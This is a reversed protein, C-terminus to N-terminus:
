YGLRGYSLRSTGLVFFGDGTGSSITTYQVLQAVPIATWTEEWRQGFQGHRHVLVVDENAQTVGGSINLTVVDGVKLDKSGPIPGITYIRAPNSLRWIRLGAVLKAQAEHQLCYRGSESTPRIDTRRPVRLSAANYRYERNTLGEIPYGVVDFKDVVMGLRTNTNRLTTLWYTAAVPTTTGVVLNSNLNEGGASRANATYSVFQALPYRFRFRQTVTSNAPILVPTTLSHVTALRGKRRPQYNITAEDFVSAYDYTLQVDETGASRDITAVPSAGVWHSWPWFKLTVDQPDVWVLAGECEAIERMEALCDDGDLYYWPVVTYGPSISASPYAISDVVHQILASTSSGQVATSEPRQQQIDRDYGYCMLTVTGAKEQAPAQQVRGRFIVGRQPSGGVKYGASFRVPVQYIGYTAAQSDAHTPSFRGDANNMTVSLSAVLGEGLSAVSGGPSMIGYDYTIPGEGCRATEDVWNVDDWCMEFLATPEAM